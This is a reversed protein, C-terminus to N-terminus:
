LQGGGPWNSWDTNSDKCPTYVTADGQELVQALARFDANGSPLEGNVLDPHHWAELQLVQALEPPVSARREQATALVADRHTAALWRCLEYTFIRPPDECEIGHAALDEISPAAIAGGRLPISQATASVRDTDDDDLWDGQDVPFFFRSENSPNTALYNDWAQATAYDAASKERVLRSGFTHVHTDPVGARPSFGFVEIVMAWDRESRYLALRTAALYVYGNDLMPFTYNRACEDLVRLIQAADIV